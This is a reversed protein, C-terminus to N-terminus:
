SRVIEDLVVFAKSRRNEKICTCKWGHMENENTKMTWLKSRRFICFATDVNEEVSRAFERTMQHSEVSALIEKISKMM